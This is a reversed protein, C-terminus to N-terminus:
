RAPPPPESDALLDWDLGALTRELDANARRKELESVIERRRMALSELDREVTFLALLLQPTALDAPPAPKNM